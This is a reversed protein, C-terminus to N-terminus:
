LLPENRREHRAVRGSRDRRGTGDGHVFAERCGGVRGVSHGWGGDGKRLRFLGAWYTGIGAYARASRRGWRRRGTDSTEAGFAGKRVVHCVQAYLTGPVGLRGSVGRGYSPRM